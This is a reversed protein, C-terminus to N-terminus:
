VRYTNRRNELRWEATAFSPDWAVGLSRCKAPTLGARDVNPAEAFYVFSSMIQTEGIFLRTDRLFDTSVSRGSANDFVKVGCVAAQGQIDVVQFAFRVGGLIGNWRVGGFEVRGGLSKTGLDTSTVLPSDACAALTAAVLLTTFCRPMLKIM